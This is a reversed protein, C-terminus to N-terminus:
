RSIESSPFDHQVIWVNRGRTLRMMMHHFKGPTVRLRLHPGDFLSDLIDSNLHQRTKQGFQLGSSEGHVAHTNDPGGIPNQFFDAVAVHACVRGFSYQKSAHKLKCGCFM